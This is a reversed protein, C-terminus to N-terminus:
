RATPRGLKEVEAFAAEAQRSEGKKGQRLLGIGYDNWREWGSFGERKM